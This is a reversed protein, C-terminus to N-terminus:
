YEKQLSVDNNLIKLGDRYVKDARKYNKIAEFYTAITKFTRSFRSGIGRALIFEYVDEKDEIHEAYKLWAQAFVKNHALVSTHDM